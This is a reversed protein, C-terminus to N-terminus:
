GLWLVNIFVFRELEGIRVRHFKNHTKSILTTAKCVDLYKNLGDWMVNTDVLSPAPKCDYQM